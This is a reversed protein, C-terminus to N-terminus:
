KTMKEIICKLKKVVFKLGTGLANLLIPCVGRPMLDATRTLRHYYDQM